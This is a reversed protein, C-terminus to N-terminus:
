GRQQQPERFRHAEHHRAGPRRRADALDQAPDALDTRRAEHQGFATRVRVALTALAAQAEDPSGLAHTPM